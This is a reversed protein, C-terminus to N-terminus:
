PKLRSRTTSKVTESVRSKNLQEAVAAVAEAIDSKVTTPSVCLREAIEQYTLGEFRHFYVASRMRSPLSKLTREACRLSQVGILHQEPTTVLESAIRDVQSDIEVSNRRRRTEGSKQWNISLNRVATFLLRRVEEAPKAGYVRHIAVFAEQVIDEAESESRIRFKCYRVLAKYDSAFVQSLVDNFKREPAAVSRSYTEAAIRHSRLQDGAEVSRRSVRASSYARESM